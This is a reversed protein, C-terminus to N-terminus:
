TVKSVKLSINTLFFWVVPLLFFLIPLGIKLWDTFSIEYNYSDSLISALMINTPTGILTSAGGISASYAIALLLPIALDVDKANTEKSFITVVSLAIPLMMITSATNSVWMSILATTIMFGAIIKSPSTGSFSLINLAIRKHLGCSEM